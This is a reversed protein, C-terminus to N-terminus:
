RCNYISAQGPYLSGRGFGKRLAKGRGSLKTALAWRALTVGLLGVGRDMALVYMVIRRGWFSRTVHKPRESNLVHKNTHDTAPQM